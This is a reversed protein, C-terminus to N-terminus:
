AQLQDQVGDPLRVKPLGLVNAQMEIGQKLLNDIMEKKKIETIKEVEM